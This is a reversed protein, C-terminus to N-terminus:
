LYHIYYLQTATTSLFQARSRYTNWGVAALMATTNNEGGGWSISPRPHPHGAAGATLEHRHYQLGWGSFMVLWVHCVSNLRTILRASAPWWSSDHCAKDQSSMDDTTITVDDTTITSDTAKSPLIWQGQADCGAEYDESPHLQLVLERGSICITCTHTTLRCRWCLCSSWNVGFLQLHFHPASCVEHYLAQRFKEVQLFSFLDITSFSHLM